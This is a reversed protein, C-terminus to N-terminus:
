QITTCDSLIEEDSEMSYKIQTCTEMDIGCYYGEFGSLVERYKLCAASSSKTCAGSGRSMEECASLTRKCRKGERMPTCHWGTLHPGSCGFLTLLVLATYAFAYSRTSTTM